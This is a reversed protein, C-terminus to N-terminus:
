RRKVDEGCGKPSDALSRAEGNAVVRGILAPERPSSPGLPPVRPQGDPLPPDQAGVRFILPHGQREAAPAMEPHQGLRRRESVARDRTTSSPRKVPGSRKSRLELWCNTDSAVVFVRWGTAAPCQQATVGRAKFAAAVSRSPAQCDSPRVSTYLSRNAVPSPVQSAETLRAVGRVAVM